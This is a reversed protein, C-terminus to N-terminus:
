PGDPSQRPGPADHHQRGLVAAEVERNLADLDQSIGKLVEAPPTPDDPQYVSLLYQRM